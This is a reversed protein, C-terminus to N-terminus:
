SEDEDGRGLKEKRFLWESRMVHLIFVSEGQPRYFIRSPPEVLHRYRSDELGEPVLGLEPHQKLKDVNAFVRKVIDRAAGPNEVAIYDAIADLDSLAPNTWIVEAM